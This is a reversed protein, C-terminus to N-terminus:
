TFTVAGANEFSMKYMAANNYEGSYEIQTVLFAGQFTGLGPMIFQFNPTTGATWATLAATEAASDKFVGELEISASRVGAGGTLIERWGGVSDADTIDVSEQDLTLTKTRGGGITTYTGSIDIKVLVDKGLQGAM